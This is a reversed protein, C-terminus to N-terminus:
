ANSIAYMKHSYVYSVTGLVFPLLMFSMSANIGHVAILSVIAGVLDFFLDAYAWEKIRAFRPVLLAIAGAVKAYSIFLIFYIPYGLDSIFKLAEEQKLIDPIATFAM